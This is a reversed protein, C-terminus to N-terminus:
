RFLLYRISSRSCKFKISVHDMDLLLSTTTDLMGACRQTRSNINQRRTKLVSPGFPFSLARWTKTNTLSIRM